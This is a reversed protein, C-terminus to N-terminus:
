GHHARTRSRRRRQLHSRSRAAGGHPRRHRQPPRRRRRQSRIRVAGRTGRTVLVPPDARGAHGRGHDCGQRGGRAPRLAARSRGHLPDHAPADHGAGQAPVVPGLPHPAGAPRPRHDARRAAAGAPRQHARPRDHSAAEHRGLALRGEGQGEGRAPRVRATRRCAERRAQRSARLLSRLRPPERSRSARHRPQRVAARRRTALPDRPRLRRPRARPDLPRRGNAHVRSRGHAHDDVKRGREPRAPRLIRRPGGRLLHRRSRRLRRLAQRSRPRRHSTGVCSMVITPPVSM